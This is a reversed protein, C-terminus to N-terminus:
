VSVAFASRGHKMCSFVEWCFRRGLEKLGGQNGALQFMGSLLLCLTKILRKGWKGM